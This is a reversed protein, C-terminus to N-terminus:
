KKKKNKEEEKERWGPRQEEKEVAFNRLDMYYLFTFSHSAWTPTCVLLGKQMLFVYSSPM